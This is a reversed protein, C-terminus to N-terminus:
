VAYPGKLILQHLKLYKYSLILKFNRKYMESFSKM